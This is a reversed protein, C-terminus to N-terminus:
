FAKKDPGLEEPQLSGFPTEGFAGLSFLRSGEENLHARRWPRCFPPGRHGTRVGAGLEGEHPGGRRCGLARSDGPQSCCSPWGSSPCLLSPGMPAALIFPPHLPIAKPGLFWARSQPCRHPWRPGSIVELHPLLLFDWASPHTGATWAAHGRPHWADSPSM